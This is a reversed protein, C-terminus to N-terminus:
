AEDVEIEYVQSLHKPNHYYDSAYNKVSNNCAFTSIKLSAEFIADYLPTNTLGERRMSVEVNSLANDLKFLERMLHESLPKKM